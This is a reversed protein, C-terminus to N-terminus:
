VATDAATATPLWTATAVPAFALYVQAREAPPPVAHQPWFLLPSLVTGAVSPVPPTPSGQRGTLREMGVGVSVDDPVVLVVSVAEKLPVLLWVPVDDDVALLVPLIFTVGENLVLLVPLMVTAGENLVLLVPLLVTTGENLVLLVPLWVPVGVCVGGDEGDRLQVGM